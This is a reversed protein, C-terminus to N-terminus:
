RDFFYPGQGSVGSQPVRRTTVDYADQQVRYSHLYLHGWTLGPSGIARTPIETRASMRSVGQFVGGASPSQPLGFPTETVSAAVSQATGHGVRPYDSRCPALFALRWDVYLPHIDRLFVRLPVADRVTPASVALWGQADTTADV